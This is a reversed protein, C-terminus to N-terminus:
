KLLQTSQFLFFNWFGYKLSFKTFASFHIFIVKIKKGIAEPTLPSLVSFHLPRILNKLLFIDPFILAFSLFFHLLLRYLIHTFNVLDKKGHTFFVGIVLEVSFFWSALVSCIGSFDSAMETDLLAFLSFDTYCTWPWYYSVLFLALSLWDPKM